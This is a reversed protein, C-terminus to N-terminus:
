ILTSNYLLLATITHSAQELLSLSNQTALSRRMKELFSLSFGILVRVDASVCSLIEYNYISPHVRTLFAVNSSNFCSLKLDISALKIFKLIRVSALSLLLM